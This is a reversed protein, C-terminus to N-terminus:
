SIQYTWEDISLVLAQKPFLKETLFQHMEPDSDACGDALVTLQFDKDAAERVTSLVIGSTAIGTLVLHSINKSRLIMELDNGSFASVRKKDVIIDSDLMGLNPSIQMFPELDANNVYDKIAAFMKNNTSIEPFGKRFGLRVFIVTIDKKRASEIANAVKETLETSHPYRGLIGMQMDMVLLATKYNEM